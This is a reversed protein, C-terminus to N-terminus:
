YVQQNDAYTSFIQTKKAPITTTRKILITMVGGATELGLSLATVDLLFLDCLKEDNITSKM